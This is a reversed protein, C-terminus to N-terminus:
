DIKSVQRQAIGRKRTKRYILYLEDKLVRCQHLKLNLVESSSLGRGDVLTPAESGGLIKPTVTVHYEDILNHEVFNWMVEGGGEILLRKVGKAELLALIQLALPAKATSPKLILVESTKSFIRIRAAPTLHSVLLVRKLRSTAFFDWQHSIGELTSSLIVNIPQDTKSMEGSTRHQGSDSALCPKRFGRLTTAGILIADCQLRLKKMQMWDHPSGLPQLTRKQTAIKGDVSMALNSFVFM